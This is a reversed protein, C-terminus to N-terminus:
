ARTKTKGNLSRLVRSNFLLGPFCSSVYFFFYGPPSIPTGRWRAFTLKQGVGILTLYRNGAPHTQISEARNRDKQSVARHRFGNSIELIRSLHSSMQKGISLPFKMNVNRYIQLGAFSTDVGPRELVLVAVCRGILM